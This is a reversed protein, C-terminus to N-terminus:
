SIYLVGLYYFCILKSLWPHYELIIKFLGLIKKYFTQFFLVKMSVIKSVLLSNSMRKM